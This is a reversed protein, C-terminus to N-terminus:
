KAKLEQSVIMSEATVSLGIISATACDRLSTLLQIINVIAGFNDKYFVHSNLLAGFDKEQNKGKEKGKGL